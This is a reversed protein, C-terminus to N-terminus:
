RPAAVELIRERRALLTNLVYDADAPDSYHAEAVIAELHPRELGAIKSAMWRRDSDTAHAFANNPWQPQWALPKFGQAEFRGVAPSVIPQRPDPESTVLGFTLINVFFMPVCGAPQWGRWPDKPRGQWAGLASNFDVMYCRALGDEFAVLTNTDNRDVDNVWAAALGLGRLERRYRLCDFCIHGRANEIFASATARRGDLAPDGTGSVTVIYEAPVNYGLAWFVRAAIIDAGSGLEPYREDDLKFVYKRGQADSGVFGPTVGDPKAKLVTFPPLPASDICPGRAVGEPTLEEPARNTYFCNDAVGDGAANWAEDGFLVRRLPKLLILERIPVVTSNKFYETWPGVTSPQFEDGLCGATNRHRFGQCGTLPLTCILLIGAWLRGAAKASASIPIASMRSALL